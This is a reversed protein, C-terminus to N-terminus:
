ILEGCGRTTAPMQLQLSLRTTPKHPCMSHANRHKFFIIIWSNARQARDCIAAVSQSPIRTLGYRPTAMNEGTEMADNMQDVNKHNHYDFAQMKWTNMSSAHHKRSQDIIEKNQTHTHRIFQPAHSMTASARTRHHTAMHTRLVSPRRQNRDSRIPICVENLQKQIGAGVLLGFVIHTSDTQRKEPQPKHTIKPTIRESVHMQM